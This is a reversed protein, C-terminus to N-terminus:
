QDFNKMSCLKSLFRKHPKLAKRFPINTTQTNQEMFGFTRIDRLTNEVAMVSYKKIFV